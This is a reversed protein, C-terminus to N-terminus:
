NIQYSLNVTIKIDQSGSQVNTGSGGAQDTVALAKYMIPSVTNDNSSESYSIIKGLNFGAAKAAAKAKHNAEDVAQKRATEESAERNEVDFTVNNVQNAGNSTASDIVDNVKDIDTIKVKLQTNASYGTIKQISSSWDYNPNIYYSVTQINKADIGLTKLGAIVKNMVENAQSQAQKVTTATKNIGINVYAIDPQISVTGEGTVTFVDSKNTVSSNVSFALPNGFKSYLSAVLFFFVIVLFAPVIKKSLDKM